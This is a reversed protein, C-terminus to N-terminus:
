ATRRALQAHITDVVAAITMGTTDVSVDACARYLAGRQQELERLTQLPDATRLLPRETGTRIRQWLARADAGLHVVTARRRLMARNGASLVAGGGTSFVVPPRSTVDDLVVSELTRFMREGHRGFMDAVSCGARAELEVDADVFRFGIREALLLGVTTKGSGMLGILCICRRLIDDGSASRTTQRTTASGGAGLAFRLNTESFNSM